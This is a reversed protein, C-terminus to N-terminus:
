QALVRVIAQAAAVGTAIAIGELSHQQIPDVSALTGGAAWLNGYVVKGAADVPQMRGDVAVGGNFVPHGAPNMFEPRFWQYRHQPITLPLDFVTEWIHGTHDSDFGGGLIGGTTLLYGKAQIKLPRSTTATEVWQVRGATGNVAPMTSAGIAEMGADVRVGMGWLRARLAKFLRMGPVSPPLTPIEFIPAGAASQLDAFAAAHNDLGLIAPLGIREGPQVLRKLEGGLKARQAKDDLALALQVNNRDSKDDLLSLPLFAARAPIGQKAMNEAILQPYFDRLGQFGVILMPEPRSADGALQAQPALFTPRLAGVASPLLLNEGATQAGGYPLGLEAALTTFVTLAAQVQHAGLLAYPHEPHGATLEQIADLPRRVPRSTEEPTYGMVDVTGAAWHMSGLGKAVVQVRLGAKAATYAALL